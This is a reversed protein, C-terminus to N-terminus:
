TRTPAKAFNLYEKAWGLTQIGQRIKEDRIVSSNTSSLMFAQNPGSGTEASKIRNFYKAFHDASSSSMTNNREQRIISKFSPLKRLILM